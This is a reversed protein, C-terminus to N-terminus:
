VKKETLTKLIETIANQAHVLHTHLSANEEKLQDIEWALTDLVESVEGASDWMWRQTRKEIDSRTSM